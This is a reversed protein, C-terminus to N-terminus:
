GPSWMYTKAGIANLQTSGGVIITTLDATVSINQQPLVILQLTDSSTYCLNKTEIALLYTGIKSPLYESQPKNALEFSGGMNM